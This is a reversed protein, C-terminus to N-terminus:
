WMRKATKKLVEDAKIADNECEKSCYPYHKQNEYKNFYNGCIECETKGVERRAPVYNEKNRSYRDGIIKSIPDFAM